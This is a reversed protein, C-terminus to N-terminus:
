ARARPRWRRGMGLGGNGRAAVLEGPTLLWGLLTPASSLSMAVLKASRRAALAPADVESRGGRQSSPASRGCLAGGTDSGEMVRGREGLSQAGSSALDAAGTCCMAGCGQRAGSRLEQLCILVEDHARHRAMEEDPDPPGLSRLLPHFIRPRKLSSASPSRRRASM